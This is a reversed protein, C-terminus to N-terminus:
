RRRNTLVLLQPFILQGRSIMKTMEGITHFYSGLVIDTDGDQDFDGAEMTLWKGAAAMPTAFAEFNMKGENSLYIFSHAPNALDTYFATAAIDIDGDLDFDRAVAKSAGYLPYFWVLKFNDKGDNLYLRIGHYNKNVPSLDWNDGNTLLIDQFGDKNFDLMEFYSMGYSPPFQLLVKEKFQGDGRNYFVSVQEWAQAMLAVVDPKMDGNMDRIEARRAGPLTKLVHEKEPQFDDLWFLKGSHNGFGCILADDKGDMNLDGAAFQVPRPLNQINVLAPNMTKSLSMLRGSRQDSPKFVGISLLRPPANKPFDIDTPASDIWWTDNLGTKGFAYLANQDDGIFLQSSAPDYKLLTTKPVQKDGVTLDSVHFLRLSDKVPLPTEQPLPQSPAMARYYALIKKWEAESILKTEPYVNLEQMVRKEEPILDAYPDQGNVRIGLRLGMNPLVSAVWTQKDLLSPEPFLHCRQCYDMALKKGEQISDALPQHGYTEPIISQFSLALGAMGIPVAILLAKKFLIM